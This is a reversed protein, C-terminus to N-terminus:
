EDNGNVMGSTSNECATWDAALSTSTHTPKPVSTPRKALAMMGPAIGAARHGRQHHADAARDDAAADERVKAFAFVNRGDARQAEDDAGGTRKQEQEEVAYEAAVKEAFADGGWRRARPLREIATIRATANRVVISRESFTTSEEFVRRIASPSEITM